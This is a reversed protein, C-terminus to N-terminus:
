SARQARHQRAGVRRRLPEDHRHRQDRAAAPGADPDLRRRPLHARDHRGEHGARHPQPDLLERRDPRVRHARAPGDARRTDLGIIVDVDPDNEAGARRPRGLLHRPRHRPGRRGVSLRVLGLPAAPAHRLAGGPDAAPHGRVRGHDPQALLPGPRAAVDFTVPELVRLKFKAPFYGVVGLPGLLLWTPPSRARLARRPRKALAPCRSCSRCRSRPASWRSRSSRCAPGCPSRSSAAGVSAACGTASTTPRARARAHGRPVRARAPGARPAAPLRQRPPRGRRRQPGVAHRRGARGQLLPRGPRVGPPRARDRHRAHDGARRVPHRRRPEGRAARRRRDPHERPGGVRGPVVERLAPEYLRRALERMHESRGWEDVDSQRPDPIAQEEDGALPPVPVLARVRGAQRTGQAM